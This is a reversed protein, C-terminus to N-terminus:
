TCREASHWDERLHGAVLSENRLEDAPNQQQGLKNLREQWLTALDAFTKTSAASAEEVAEWQARETATDTDASSAGAVLMLAIVLGKFLRRM